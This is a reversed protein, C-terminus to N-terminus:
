RRVPLTVVFTSGQGPRSRATISGGHREVIKRCIALGMGAGEYRSSRGHLRQFPAFIRDLDKEDFGIGNDEVTIQVQGGERGTGHVKVLPKEGEKHFKLANGILNQFLQRMQTPEASIVPLEGVDVQGGTKAIRVELDSIVEQVVANLDVERLPEAKTTVQSYELLSDLLTQMRGTARLMRDLYDAGKEGIAESYEEKLMDGFSVVKRLPEGLDHSAIFAFELLAQNSEQLRKTYTELEATREQVRVELEDKARRLSEEAQKRGFAQLVVPALAELADRHEEGYGGERNGLAIIGIPKGDTLLPVGLFSTLPPHGKPIGISDPHSIPDNAILAKGDTLVRGYLGHIRFNGPPRRHGAKDHMTCLEWGPDSVAIDHLLGDPGLRGIFGFKSGTVEEAVSLCARGLDEETGGRLTEQFIRNIGAFLTNQRLLRKQAHKLETIDRVVSVSGIIDGGGNRVPSSSVQRYRLEGTAPTRIIEEQNTVVEGSLARLPPAEEISRLTGDPRLVELSAALQRVDTATAVGLSFERTGSPNVLTFQRSTDAFWVEDQISNVLALLREKEERVVRLLREREEEAREREDIERELETKSTTLSKLNGTMRNFARSLDGLEDDPMGTFAFDLNGAGIADAGKRLLLLSSTVSKRMRVLVLTLPVIAFILVLLILSFARRQAIGIESDVLGRLRTAISDARHSRILLQGVLHEELEKSSADSGAPGSPDAEAVLKLFQVKVAESELHLDALLRGQEPDRLHIAAILGTLSDYEAFFQRKPREERYTVYTFVLHNLDRISNRMQRVRDGNATATEVAQYSYALTLAIVLAVIVPVLVAFMLRTSIRM